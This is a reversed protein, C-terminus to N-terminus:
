YATIRLVPPMQSTDSWSAGAVTDGKRLAAAIALKDPEPDRRRIFQEPLKNVDPAEVVARPKAFSATGLEAEVAKEGLLDMLQQITARLKDQREQYRAKRTTYRKVLNAMHDVKHGAVVSADILKVLMARPPQLGAERILREIEDEDAEFSPDDDVVLAHLQQHLSASMELEYATPLRDPLKSMLHRYLM